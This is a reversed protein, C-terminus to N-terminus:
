KITYMNIKLALCEPQGKTFCLRGNYEDVYIYYENDFVIKLMMEIDYKNLNNLFTYYINNEINAFNNKDVIHTTTYKKLM